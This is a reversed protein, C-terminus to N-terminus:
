REESFIKKIVEEVVKSTILGQMIIFKFDDIGIESNVKASCEIIVERLEKEALTVENGRVIM